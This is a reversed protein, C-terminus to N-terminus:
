IVLEQMFVCGDRCSVMCGFVAFQFFWVSGFSSALGRETGRSERKKSRLERREKIKRGKETM